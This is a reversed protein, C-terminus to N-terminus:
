HITFEGVLTVQASDASEGGLQVSTLDFRIAPFKESEMSKNLDRDRRGNGTVLTTVPAEVFGTVEAVSAGGTMEGTVTTTTATFAGTTAKGDFRLTGKAVVSPVLRHQAGLPPAAGLLLVASVFALSRGFRRKAAGLRRIAIWGMSAFRRSCPRDRLGLC